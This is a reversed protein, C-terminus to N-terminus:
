KHKYTGFIDNQEIHYELSYDTHYSDDYPVEYFTPENTDNINDGVIEDEPRVKVTEIRTVVKTSTSTAFLLRRNTLIIAVNKLNENSKFDIDVWV